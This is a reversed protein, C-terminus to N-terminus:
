PNKKERPKHITGYVPIELIEEEEGKVFITLRESIRGKTKEGPDYTVRVLCVKGEKKPVIETTIFDTTATVRDVSFGKDGTGTLTIDRTLPEGPRVMGFSLLQPSIKVRGQVFAYFPVQMKPVKRSNTKVLIKGTLRGTPAKDALSVAYAAKNENSEEEKLLISPNDASVEKIKLGKGEQLTIELRIPQPPSDKSVNRFNVYRPTIMVESVVHGMISLRMHRNDPDNTEVTVTKKVKGQFGKSRFSAKIEGVGGPPIEKATVL